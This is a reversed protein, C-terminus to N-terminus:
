DMKVFEAKVIWRGKIWWIPTCTFLTLLKKESPKLVSVDDSPTNYSKKVEYIYRKFNWERNKEYVWVEEWSDAAIINQFDTKYRGPKDLWYSSHGVIVKNWIQWFWNLSTWPIELVWTELYPAVDVERWDIFWSYNTDSEDVSNIPIVLWQTPLVIYKDWDLDRKDLVQLWYSLDKKDSWALRFRDKEFETYINPHPEAREVRSYIKELVKNDLVSINEKRSKEIKEFEKQRQKIREEKREKKRKIYYAVKEKRLNIDLNLIGLLEEDNIDLVKKLINISVEIKKKDKIDFNARAWDISLFSFFIIFILIIIRFRTKM